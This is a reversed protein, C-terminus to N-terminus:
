SRVYCWLYINIDRSLLGTLLSLCISYSVWLWIAFSYCFYCKSRLNVQRWLTGEKMIYIIDIKQRNLPTEYSYLFPCKWNEMGASNRSLAVCLLSSILLNFSLQLFSSTFILSCLPYTVDYRLRLPTNRSPSLSLSLHCM